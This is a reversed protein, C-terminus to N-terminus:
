VSFYSHHKSMGVIIFIFEVEKTELRGSENDDLPGLKMGLIPDLSTEKSSTM